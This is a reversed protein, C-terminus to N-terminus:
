GEQCPKKSLGLFRMRQGKLSRERGHQGLIDVLRWFSRSLSFPEKVVQFGAGALFGRLAFFQM